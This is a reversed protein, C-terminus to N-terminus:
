INLRGTGCVAFDIVYNKPFNSSRLKPAVVDNFFSLVQRHLAEKLEVLRKSFILYNYQSIANLTGDNVFGRFEMDVPIDVFKRIVFNTNYVEPRNVAALLLDQYVRESRVFMDMVDAATKVKMFDFAAQLLCFIKTNELDQEEPQCLLIKEQYITKLKSQLLPADKASRSSLKVFAFGDKTYIDMAKDLRAEITEIHKSEM